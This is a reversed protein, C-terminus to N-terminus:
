PLSFGSVTQADHTGWSCNEVSSSCSLTSSGEDYSFHWTYMSPYFQKQDSQHYVQQLKYTGDSYGSVKISYLCTVTFSPSGATYWGNSGEFQKAPNISVSTFVINSNTAGVDPCTTGASGNHIFTMLGLCLVLSGAYKKAIM